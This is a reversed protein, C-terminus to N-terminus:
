ENKYEIFFFLLFKKITIKPMHATIIYKAKHM